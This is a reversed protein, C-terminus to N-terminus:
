SENHVADDESKNRKLVAREDLDRVVWLSAVIALAAVASLLWFPVVVFGNRLAVGYVVMFLVPLTCRALNSVSTGITNITGRASPYPVCENILIVMPPQAGTRATMFLVMVVSIAAWVAPTKASAIAGNSSGVTHDSVAFVPFPGIFYVLPFFWLALRWVRVTGLHNILKPLLFIQLVAGLVTACTTLTGIEPPTLGLGGALRPQDNENHDAPQDQSDSSSGAVPTSLLTTWLLAFTAIHGTIFFHAIMTSIIKPRWLERLPTIAPRSTDRATGAENEDTDDQSTELAGTLPISSEGEGAVPKYAPQSQYGFRLYRRILTWTGANPATRWPRRNQQLTEPVVCIVAIAAISYCFAIILSPLAYPYESLKGMGQRDSAFGGILPGLLIGISDTLPLLLL